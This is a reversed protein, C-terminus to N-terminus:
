VEEWYGHRFKCYNPGKFILGDEPKPCGAKKLASEQFFAGRQQSALFCKGECVKGSYRLEVLSNGMYPCPMSAPRMHVTEKVSASLRFQAMISDGERTRLNHLLMENAQERQYPGYCKRREYFEHKM